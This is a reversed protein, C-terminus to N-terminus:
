MEVCEGYPSACYTKEGGAWFTAATGFTDEMYQFYSVLGEHDFATRVAWPWTCSRNMTRSTLTFTGWASVNRGGADAFVVDMSFPGREWWRGVRTFTDVFAKPGAHAHTSAWPMLKHLDPNDITLSVYTADFAVLSEILDENPDSLTNLLQLLKTISTTSLDSSASRQTLQRLKNPDSLLEDIPIAVIIPLLAFLSTIETILSRM